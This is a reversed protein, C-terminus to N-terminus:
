RSIADWSTCRLTARKRRGDPLGGKVWVRVGSGSPSFESYSDLTKIIEIAWPEWKHTIRDVCHDLDVGVIGSEVTCVFGIGDFKGRGQQYAALARQFNAWTTSDTTSAKRDNVQSPVKTWENDDNLEYRWVVWQNLQRLDAPVNEAIVSLAKPRPPPTDIQTAGTM